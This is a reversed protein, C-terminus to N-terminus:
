CEMEIVECFYEKRGAFLDSIRSEVLFGLTGFSFFIWFVCIRRVCLFSKRKDSFVSRYKKQGERRRIRRNRKMLFTLIIPQLILEVFFLSLAACIKSTDTQYIGVRSPAIIDQEYFLIKPTVTTHIHCTHHAEILIQILL